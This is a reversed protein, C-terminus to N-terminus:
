REDVEDLSREGAPPSDGLKTEKNPRVIWGVASSADSALCDLEFLTDFRHGSLQTSGGVGDGLRALGSPQEDLM